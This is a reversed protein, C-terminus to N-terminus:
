TAEETSGFCERFQFFSLFNRKIWDFDLSNSTKISLQGFLIVYTNKYNM